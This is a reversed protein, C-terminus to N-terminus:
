RGCTERDGSADSRNRPSSLQAASTSDRPSRRPARPSPSCADAVRRPPLTRLGWRRGKGALSRCSRPGKPGAATRTSPLATVVPSRRRGRGWPTLGFARQSIHAPQRATPRERQSRLCGSSLPRLLTNRSGVSTPRPTWPSTQRPTSSRSSRGCATTSPSTATRFAAALCTDVIVDTDNALQRSVLSFVLAYALRGQEVEALLDPIDIRPTLRDLETRLRVALEYRDTGWREAPMLFGAPDAYRRGIPRYLRGARLADRWVFWLGLEYRTRQVRGDDHAGL